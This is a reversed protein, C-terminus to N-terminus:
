RNRRAVHGGIVHGPEEPGQEPQVGLFRGRALQRRLAAVGKGEDDSPDISTRHERGLLVAAWVSHM